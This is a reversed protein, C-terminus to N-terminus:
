GGDGGDDEERRRRRRGAVGAIALFLAVPLLFSLLEPLGSGHALLAAGRTM